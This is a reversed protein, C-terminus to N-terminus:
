RSLQAYASQSNRLASRPIMYDLMLHSNKLNFMHVLELAYWRTSTSTVLQPMRCCSRVRRGARFLQAFDSLTYQKPDPLFLWAPHDLFRDVVLYDRRSQGTEAARTIFQFTKRLQRNGGFPGTLKWMKQSRRFTFRNNQHELLLVGVMCTRLSERDDPIRALETFKTPTFNPLFVANHM